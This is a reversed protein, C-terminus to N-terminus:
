DSDNSMNRGKGGKNNITRNWTLKHAKQKTLVATVNAILRFAAIAYKHHGFAKYYQLLFVSVDHLGKGMM